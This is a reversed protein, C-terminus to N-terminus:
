KWKLSTNALVSFSCWQLQTLTLKWLAGPHFCFRCDFIVEKRCNRATSPKKLFFFHVTEYQVRRSTDTRKTAMWRLFISMSQILLIRIGPSAAYGGWGWNGFSVTLEPVQLSSTLGFGKWFTDSCTEWFFTCFGTPVELIGSNVDCPHNTM